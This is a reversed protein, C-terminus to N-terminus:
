QLQQGRKPPHMSIMCLISLLPCSPFFLFFSRFFLLSPFAFCLLSHRNVFMCVMAAWPVPRASGLRHVLVGTAPPSAPLCAPQRRSGELLAGLGVAPVAHHHEDSPGGGGVDVAAGVVPPRVLGLEGGDPDAAGAGDGHHAGAAPVAAAAPAAPPASAATDQQQQAGGGQEQRPHRGADGRAEACAEGAGAAAGQRGRRRRHLGAGGARADAGGDADGRGRGRGRRGQERGDGAGVGASRSVLGSLTVLRGMLWRPRTSRTARSQRRRM